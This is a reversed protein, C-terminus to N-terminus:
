TDCSWAGAKQSQSYSRTPGAPPKHREGSLTPGVRGSESWSEALHGWPHEPITGSIGGPPGQQTCDEMWGERMVCLSWPPPVTTLASPGCIATVSIRTRIGLMAYPGSCKSPFATSNSRVSRDCCPRAVTPRPPPDGCRVETCSAM